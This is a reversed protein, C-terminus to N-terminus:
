LYYLLLSSTMHFSNSDNDNNYLEVRHCASNMARIMGAVEESTENRARLLTILSGVQIPDAENTLICQFAHETENSTLHREGAILIEIYQKLSM